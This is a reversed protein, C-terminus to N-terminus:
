PENVFYMQGQTRKSLLELNATNGDYKGFAISYIPIGQEECKQAVYEEDQLSQELRRGTQSGKLDSEGDSILVIAKKRNTEQSILEHANRLGLGIDTNGSYGPADILQRLVQREENTGVSILSTTSLLRDNYAVFGFRIDASHVTDILAKVMGQATQEPDNTKMSGSYDMVFIVDLGKKDSSHGNVESIFSFMLM